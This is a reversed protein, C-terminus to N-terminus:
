MRLRKSCKKRVYFQCPNAETKGSPSEGCRSKKGDGKKGKGKAAALRGAVAPVRVKARAVSKHERGEAVVIWTLRTARVSTNANALMAEEFTGTKFWAHCDGPQQKVAHANPRANGVSKDSSSQTTRRRELEVLM